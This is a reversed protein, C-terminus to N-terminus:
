KLDWLGYIRFLCCQGSIRYKCDQHHDSYLIGVAVYLVCFVSWMDLISLGTVINSGVVCM